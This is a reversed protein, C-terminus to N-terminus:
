IILNLYPLFIFRCICFGQTNNTTKARESENFSQFLCCLHVLGRLLNIFLKSHFDERKIVEPILIKSLVPLVLPYTAVANGFAAEQLVRWFKPLVM